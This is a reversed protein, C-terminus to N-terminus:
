YLDSAATCAHGGAGAGTASRTTTLASPTAPQATKYPASCSTQSTAPVSYNNYNPLHIARQRLQCAVGKRDPYEIVHLFPTSFATCIYIKGDPALEVAAFTLLLALRM